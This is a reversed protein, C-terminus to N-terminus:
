GIVTEPREFVTASLLRAHECTIKVALVDGRNSAPINLVRPGTTAAVAASAVARATTTIYRIPYAVVGFSVGIISSSLTGTSVSWECGFSDIAVPAGGSREHLTATVTPDSSASYAQVGLILAVHEARPTSQWSFWYDDPGSPPAVFQITGGGGPDDFGVLSQASRRFKWGELHGALDIFQGVVAGQVPVKWQVAEVPPLLPISNIVPITM